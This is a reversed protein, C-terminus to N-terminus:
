NNKWIDCYNPIHNYDTIKGSIVLTQSIIDKSNRHYRIILWYLLMIPYYLPKLLGGAPSCTASNTQQFIGAFGAPLPKKTQNNETVGWLFGSIWAIKV